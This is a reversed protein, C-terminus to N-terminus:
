EPRGRLRADVITGALAAARAPGSPRPARSLVDYGASEIAALASRGGSVFAAVALGSRGGLDAVLPLGRDLLSRARGCEFAMLRRFPPTPWSAELDRIEVGFRDLDETPVYVRGRRADEAVDQWHETLQLGTCVADSWAMRRPTAARLVLLVLHGVPNASLGCYGLLDGFTRYRHASQDRRNAEILRDFPERPLSFARVTPALGHVLPHLDRDQGAFVRDLESSVRDLLAARDGAAEDGVDDVLRAFGYIALLHSRLHSPLFRPGVPFNEASARALIRAPELVADVARPM